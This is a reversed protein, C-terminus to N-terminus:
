LSMKIGKNLKIKNNNKKLKSPTKKEWLWAGLHPDKLLFAAVGHEHRRAQRYMEAKLNQKKLFISKNFFYLDFQSSNRMM